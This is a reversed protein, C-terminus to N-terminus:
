VAKQLATTVAHIQAMNKSNSTLALFTYLFSGKHHIRTLETLTRQSKDGNIYFYGHYLSSLLARGNTILKRAETPVTEINLMLPKETLLSLGCSLCYSLNPIESKGSGSNIMNFPPQITQHCSPCRDSLLCNHIPCWRWPDFRWEIRFHPVLDTKLCLPCYRSLPKKDSNLLFAAGNENIQHLQSMVRRIVKFEDPDLRSALVLSQQSNTALYLDIDYTNIKLFKRLENVTCGQSLALRSVWSALSETGIVSPVRYLKPTQSDAM